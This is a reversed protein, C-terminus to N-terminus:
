SAAKADTEGEKSRAKKLLEYDELSVLVAMDRGARSIVVREGSYAVRNVLDALQARVQSTKLSRVKDVM